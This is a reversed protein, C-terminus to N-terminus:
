ATRSLIRSSRFGPHTPHRPRLRRHSFEIRVPVYKVLRLMMLHMDQRGSKFDSVGPVLLCKGYESEIRFHALFRPVDTYLWATM